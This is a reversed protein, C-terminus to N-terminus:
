PSQIYRPRINSIRLIAHQIVIIVFTLTPVLLRCEVCLLEWPLITPRSFDALYPSHMTFGLLFLAFMSQSFIKPATSCSGNDWGTQCTYKDCCHLQKKMVKVGSTWAVFIGYPGIECAGVIRVGHFHWKSRVSKVTFYWSLYKCMCRCSYQRTMHLCKYRDSLWYSFSLKDGDSQYQWQFITLSIPRRSSQESGKVCYSIARFGCMLSIQTGKQYLAYLGIIIWCHLTSSSLFRTNLLTVIAFTNHWFLKWM